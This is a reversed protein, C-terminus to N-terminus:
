RRSLAGWLMMLGFICFTASQFLRLGTIGDTSMVGIFIGSAILGSVALVAFLWKPFTKKRKDIM